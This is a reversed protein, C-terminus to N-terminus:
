EQPALDAFLSYVEYSSKLISFIQYVPGLCEPIVEIRPHVNSVLHIAVQFRLGSDRFYTLFNGRLIPPPALETLLGNEVAYETFNAKVIAGPAPKRKEEPQLYRM